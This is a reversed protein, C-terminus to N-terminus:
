GDQDVTLWALTEAISEEISRAQGAAYAAAFGAQGLTATKREGSSAYVAGGSRRAAHRGCL